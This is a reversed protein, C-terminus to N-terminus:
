GIVRLGRPDLAVGHSVSLKRVQVNVDGAVVVIGSGKSRDVAIALADYFEDEQTCSSGGTQTYM